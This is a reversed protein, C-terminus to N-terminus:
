TYNWLQDQGDEYEVDNPPGSESSHLNSNKKKSSPLPSSKLLPLYKQPNTLFELDNAGKWFYFSDGITYSYDIYLDDLVKQFCVYDHHKGSLWLCRLIRTIRRFNHNNSTIWFDDRQFFRIMRALSLDLNDQIKEDKLIITIDDPTLVPADKCYSSKLDIPFLWQIVDHARELKNHTMNRLQVLSRGKYDPTRGRLFLTIHSDM